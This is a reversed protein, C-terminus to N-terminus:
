SSTGGGETFSIDGTSHIQSSTGGGETFSIDGTSHIQSSTGGGETFSIDGTSHIQSSTGGGETFSIDGTSHIQSSTGGGETFSIDGTSHIQSSTGGGETLSHHSMSISCNEDDLRDADNHGDIMSTMGSVNGILPSRCGGPPFLLYNFGCQGHCVFNCDEHDDHLVETRYADVEEREDQNSSFRETNMDAIGNEAM